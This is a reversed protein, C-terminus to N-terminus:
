ERVQFLVKAYICTSCIKPRKDEIPDNSFENQGTRTLNGEELSMMETEKRKVFDDKIKGALKSEETFEEVERNPKKIQKRPM